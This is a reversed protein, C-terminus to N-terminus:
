RLTRDRKDTLVDLLRITSDMQGLAPTRGDPSSAVANSRDFSLPREVGRLSKVAQVDWLSCCIRPWPATLAAARLQFRVVKLCARPWAPVEPGKVTEGLRPVSLAM